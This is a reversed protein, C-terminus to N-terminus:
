ALVQITHPKLAHAKTNLFDVVNQPLQHPRADVKRLPAVPHSAEVGTIRIKTGSKLNFYGELIDDVAAGEVRM